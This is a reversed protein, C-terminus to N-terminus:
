RVLLIGGVPPYDFDPGISCMLKPQSGDSPQYIETPVLFVLPNPLNTPDPNSYGILFYSQLEGEVTAFSRALPIGVWQEADHSMADLNRLLVWLEVYRRGAQETPQEM